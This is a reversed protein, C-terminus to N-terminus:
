GNEKGESREDGAYFVWRSQLNFQVVTLGLVIVLFIWAL